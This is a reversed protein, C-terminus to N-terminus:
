LEKEKTITKKKSKKKTKAETKVPESVTVPTAKVVGAGRRASNRLRRSRGGM